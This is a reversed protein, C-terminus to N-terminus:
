AAPSKGRLRVVREGEIVPSSNGRLKVAAGRYEGLSALANKFRSELLGLMRQISELEESSRRVAEAEIAYEDLAIKQLLEAVESKAEAETFWRTTLEEAEDADVGVQGLLNKLAESFGLNILVSKVREYRATEWIISAIRRAIGAEILGQPKLDQEIQHHLAEFDKASETILVPMASGSPMGKPQKTKNNLMKLGLIIRKGWHLRSITSREFHLQPLSIMARRRIPKYAKGRWRLSFTLVSSSDPKLLNVVAISSTVKRDAVPSFERPNGASVLYASAM